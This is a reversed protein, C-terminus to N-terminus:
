TWLAQLRKSLAQEKSNLKAKVKHVIDQAMNKLNTADLNNNIVTNCASMKKSEAWQWADMEQCQAETWNRNQLLRAYRNEQLCEVGVVHANDELHRGNEFYLPIEAVAIAEGKDQCDQWFKELEAFVLAHINNNVEQRVVPEQMAQRLAQRDIEAKPHAIVLKGFRKLIYNHGAEGVNYLKQVIADASITAINLKAFEQLLTSKGCGPLGTIVIKQTSKSLKLACDLIDQPPPCHFECINENQAATPHNFSLKWAHLMQRKAPSAPTIKPGYVGDGWLPFGLHAMHVRIQHTRGTFIEVRILAFKKHPDAYLTQWASHATRGGHKEEVVAMKVKSKADRGLPAHIEGQEKPVGHVLALYYKNVRREAFDEALKLRAQETLAICILGSTDKDLRHVIGPRLGEQLLLPPFHSALRQVYTGSPCSPCPHVTIGAPKNCIAIHDDNWIIDVDGTEPTIHEVPAQLSLEIKQAFKLKISPSKPKLGDVTCQGDQIARKLKERSIGSLQEVLFADLRKGAQDFSVEFIHNQM